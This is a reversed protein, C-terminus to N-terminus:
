QSMQETMKVTMWVGRQRDEIPEILEPRSYKVNGVTRSVRYFDMRKSPFSQLLGWGATGDLWRDYNASDLIVPM